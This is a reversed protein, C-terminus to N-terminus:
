IYIYTIMNLLILTDMIEQHVKADGSIELSRVWSEVPAAPRLPSPQDPSPTLRTKPSPDPSAPFLKSTSFTPFSPIIWLLYSYGGQNNPLWGDMSTWDLPIYSYGIPHIFLLGMGEWGNGLALLVITSANRADILPNTQHYVLLFFM